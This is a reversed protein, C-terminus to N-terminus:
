YGRELDIANIFHTENRLYRSLNDRFIQLSRPQYETTISSVHPTLTVQKMDWFPHAKDLPEEEFVDLVAHAIVGSKLADVLDNQNVTTGRGINIFVSDAKMAQFHNKNILHYTASTSPLVSVVFDASPLANLIDDIMFIDDIYETAQGSRNVGVTKMRFAKALRAVEGGIAGPGIITITKGALEQTQIARDWQHGKQKISLQQLQKATQLMTGLTYEAMPIKHIGRANTVMIDRQKIADFPMKDLGASIVMIWKLNEAWEITENTLDEGYTILIDAQKLESLAEKINSHFSFVVNPFDNVLDNRLDRRIKASTVVKM